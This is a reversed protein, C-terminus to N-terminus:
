ALVDRTTVLRIGAALSVATYGLLLLAAAGVPLLDADVSRILSGAAGFSLWKGIPRYLQFLLQEVVLLWALTGVIAAIQNRVIAGIGVGILGFLVMVATSGVLVGAVDTSFLAPHVEKTALWPLAIALAVANSIVAIGAGILAM